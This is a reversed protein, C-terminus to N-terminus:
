FFYLIRGIHSFNLFYFCFTFSPVFITTTTKLKLEAASMKFILTWIISEFNLMYHFEQCWCLGTIIGVVTCIHEVMYSFNFCDFVEVSNTTRVSVKESISYQFAVNSTRCLKTLLFKGLPHWVLSMARFSTENAFAELSYFTHVPTTKSFLLLMFNLNELVFLNRLIESRLM